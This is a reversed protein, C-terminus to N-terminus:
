LTIDCKGKSDVAPNSVSRRYDQGQHEEGGYGRNLQEVAEVGVSYMDHVISTTPTTLLECTNLDDMSIVSIEGPIGIGQEQLFRYVGRCCFLESRDVRGMERLRSFLEQAAAYGSEADFGCFILNEKDIGLNMEKLAKGYGCLRDLASFSGSFTSDISDIMDACDRFPPTEWFGALFGINKRDLKLLYRTALYGAKEDNTSVHPPM